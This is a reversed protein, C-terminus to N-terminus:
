HHLCLDLGLNLLQDLQFEQDLLVRLLSDSALRQAEAVPIPGIGEIECVEDGEVSGRVLAAHDVRVEVLALPGSREGRRTAGDAGGDVGDCRDRRTTSGNRAQECIAVLGDALYTSHMEHVGKTRATEFEIRAYHELAEVVKAGAVKTLRAELCFAGDRAVHHRVFRTRHVRDQEAQAHDTARAIVRDTESGLEKVTSWQATHLLHTEAHPDVTAGRAVEVAQSESIRGTVLAKATNPLNSLRTGLEVTRRAEGWGAGTENAVWAEPTKAKGDDWADKRAVEGITLAQLGAVKREIRDLVRVQDRLSEASMCAVDTVAIVADVLEEVDYLRDDMDHM